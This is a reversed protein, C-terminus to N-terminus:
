FGNFQEKSLKTLPEREFITQDNEIYNFVKSNLVFFSGNIWGAKAQPKEEFSQVKDGHLELEGFEMPTRVATVTAIKKHKKHFNILEDVRIDSLGDGYTM